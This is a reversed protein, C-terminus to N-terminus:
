SQLPDEVSGHKKELAKRKAAIQILLAYLAVCAAQTATGAHDYVCLCFGLEETARRLHSYLKNISKRESEPLLFARLSRELTEAFERVDESLEDSM